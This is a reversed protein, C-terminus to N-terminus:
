RFYRLLQTVTWMATIAISSREDFFKRYTGTVKAPMAFVAIAAASNFVKNRLINPINLNKM